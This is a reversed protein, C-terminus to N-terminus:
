AVPNSQTLACIVKWNERRARRVKQRLEVKRNLVLRVLNSNLPKGSRELLTLTYLGDLLARRIQRAEWMFRKRARRATDAPSGTVHLM